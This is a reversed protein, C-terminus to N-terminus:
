PQTTCGFLEHHEAIQRDSGPTVRYDRLHKSFKIVSPVGVQHCQQFAADLLAYKSVVHIYRQARPRYHHGQSTQGTLYAPEPLSAVVRRLVNPTNERRFPQRGGAVALSRLEIRDLRLARGLADV